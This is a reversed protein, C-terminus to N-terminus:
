QPELHPHRAFIFNLVNALNALNMGARLGPDKLSKKIAEIDDQIDGVAIEPLPERIDFAEDPHILLYHTQSASISTVGNRSCDKFLDHLLRELDSFQITQIKNKGM